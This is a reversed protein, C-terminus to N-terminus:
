YGRDDRIKKCSACIPIFGELTKVEILTKELKKSYKVLEKEVKKREMIENQAKAPREIMHENSSNDPM